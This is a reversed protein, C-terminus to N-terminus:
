LELLELARLEVCGIDRVLGSETNFISVSGVLLFSAVEDWPLVISM